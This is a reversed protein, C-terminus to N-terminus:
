LAGIVEYMVKLGFGLSDQPLRENHGHFMQNFVLDEPLKLPCFGYCQIGLRDYYKSDTFGPMMYPVVICGPDHQQLTRTMVDLVHPDPNISTPQDSRIIEIDYGPGILTLLERIFDADRQGPLLRGDIQVEALPPIVNTKSGGRLVTPSATNHLMAAFGTAKEIPLIRDLIVPESAAHLLGKLVQGVALSQTEALTRIFGEVVPTKHYPLRNRGIKQIAEALKVIANDPHPMSGHGPRGQAKLRLWCYGKEAIQIPYYCRGNLYLSFGGVENFGYECDAVLEPRHKVLHAAGFEGGEEEDSLAVFVLDRDLPAEAQQFLLLMMLNMATMQKMDVAGRGWIVGQEDVHGSFPPHQWFAPDAPVVDVHSTLLLPRKNGNGKLRAVLNGRKPATELLQYPIGVADFCQGLYQLLSWENGPPNTTDFQLLKVLHQAAQQQIDPWHIASM